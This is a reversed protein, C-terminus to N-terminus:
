TERALGLHRVSGDWGAALAEVLDPLEAPFTEIEVRRLDDASWWRMEDLFEHEVDTWGARDLRWSFAEAGLRALYFVEDQRCTARAFDFVASRTVVPGVLSGPELVLGTEERAERVAAALDSEGEEIGGGITFWWSREPRDVDHGRALLVRGDPDLLIM